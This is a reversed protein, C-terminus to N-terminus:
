LYSARLFPRKKPFSTKTQEEENMRKRVIYSTCMRGWARHYAGPIRPDEGMFPQADTCLNEFHTLFFCALVEGGIINKRNKTKDKIFNHLILTLTLSSQLAEQSFVLGEGGNEEGWPGGSGSREAPM